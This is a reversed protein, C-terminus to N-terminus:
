ERQYDKRFKLKFFLGLIMIIFISFILKASFSLNNIYFISIFFSSIAFGWCIYEKEINLKISKKFTIWLVIEFITFSVVYAVSLGYAGFQSGYYMMPIAILANIISLKFLIKEKNIAGFITSITWNVAMLFTFWVQMQTVRIVPLYKETFLLNVVDEIFLNFFLALTTGLLLFYQFGKSIIKNFNEQNNIWMASLSPFVALIAYNLVMQVPALLRRALNFFGIEDVTSNLELYINYFQQVPIMILMVSFYPWSERLIKKTSTLFSKKRGKLMKNKKLFIVMALAQLINLFIFIYILNYITFNNEPLYFVFGFWTIGYFIKLLSAFFMNQNGLYAYELVIWLANSLGCFGVMLVNFTTLTGFFSNYLLYICTLIVFTITRLILGNSILDNTKYKDRAIARVVVPQIGLDSIAVLLLGQSTIFTFLGYDEPAFYNTIRLVVILSLIQSITNGITMFSFNQVVENQGIKKIVSM